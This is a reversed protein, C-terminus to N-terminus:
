KRKIIKFFDEKFTFPWTGREYRKGSWNAFESFNYRCYIPHFRSLDSSKDSIINAIDDVRCIVRM